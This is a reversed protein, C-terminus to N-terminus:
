REAAGRGPQIEVGGKFVREVRRSDLIQELPHGHVILIDAHSGTEITGVLGQYGLAKGAWGTAARIAELPELGAEVLHALEEHLGAGPPTGRTPADSGALVTGGRRHFSGIFKLHLDMRAESFIRDLVAFTPVAFAGTQLMKRLVQEAAASDDFDIGSLHEVGLAGAKLADMADFSDDGMADFSVALGREAAARCLGPLLARDMQARVKLFDAGAGALEEVVRPIDSASRLVSYHDLEEAQFNGPQLPPESVIFRGNHFIRPGERSGSEIDSKLKQIARLTTGGMHRVSTVGHRLFERPDVGEVLHVHMDILGPLVTMDTADIAVAGPPIRTERRPGAAMVRGGQVIIVSDPIPDAETGDILIGGVIALIREQHGAGPPGAASEAGAHVAASASVVLAACLAISRSLIRISM